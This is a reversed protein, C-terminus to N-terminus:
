RFGVKVARLLEVHDAHGVDGFGLERAFGFDTVGGHGHDGIVVAPVRFVLRHGRRLNDGREVLVGGVRLVHDTFGYFGHRGLAFALAPGRQRM